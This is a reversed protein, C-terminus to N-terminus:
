RQRKIPGTLEDLNEQTQEKVQNVDAVIDQQIQKMQQPADGLFNQRAKSIESNINGTIDDVSQRIGNEEMGKNIESKIDNTANRLQAMAKGMTRAIDPIKDSGFLMLMIFLIFIMEGGGIGFM